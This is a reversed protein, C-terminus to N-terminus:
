FTLQSVILVFVLKLKGLYLNRHLTVSLYREFGFVFMFVWLITVMEGSLVNYQLCFDWM